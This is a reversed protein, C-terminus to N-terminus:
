RVHGTKAEYARVMWDDAVGGVAFVRNGHSAIQTAFDGVGSPSMQDHWLVAGSRLDLARVMFADGLFSPSTATVGAISVVNATITLFTGQDFGDAGGDFQDEWLLAGTGANYARTIADCGSPGTFSFCNSGGFGTAIAHDEHLMLARVSEYDAGREARDEWILEGDALTYARVVWRGRGMLEVNGGAV